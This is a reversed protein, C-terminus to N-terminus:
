PFHSISKGLKRPAIDFFIFISDRKTIKGALVVFKETKM